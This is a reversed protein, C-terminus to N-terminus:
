TDSNEYFTNQVTYLAIWFYDQIWKSMHLCYVEDPGSDSPILCALHHLCSFGLEPSILVRELPVNRPFYGLDQSTLFHLTKWSCEMVTTVYSHASVNSPHGSWSSSWSFTFCYYLCKESHSSHASLHYIFIPLGRSLNWQMYFYLWLPTWCQLFQVLLCLSLYLKEQTIAWGHIPGGGYMHLYNGSVALYLFDTQLRPSFALVKLISVTTEIFVLSQVSLFVM